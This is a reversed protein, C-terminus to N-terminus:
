KSFSGRTEELSARYRERSWARVGSRTGRQDKERSKSWSRTNEIADLFTPCPPPRFKNLSDPPSTSFHLHYTFRRHPFHRGHNAFNLSYFYPFSTSSLYLRHLTSSRKSSNPLSTCPLYTHSRLSSKQLPPIFPESQYADRDKVDGGWCVIDNAALAKVFDPDVM